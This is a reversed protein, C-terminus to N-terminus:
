VRQNLFSGKSALGKVAGIEVLHRGLNLTKRNAKKFGDVREASRLAASDEQRIRARREEQRAFTEKEEQRLREKESIKKEEEAKQAEQDEQAKRQAEIEQEKERLDNKQAADRVVPARRNENRAAAAGQELAKFSSAKLDNNEQGVPARGLPVFPAVANAHNSPISNIM